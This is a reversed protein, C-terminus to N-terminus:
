YLGLGKDQEQAQLNDEQPKGGGTLPSFFPTFDLIPLNDPRGLVTHSPIRVTKVRNFWLHLETVLSKQESSLSPICNLPSVHGVKQLYLPGLCKRKKVANM